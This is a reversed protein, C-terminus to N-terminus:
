GHFGIIFRIAFFAGVAVVPTAGIAFVVRWGENM